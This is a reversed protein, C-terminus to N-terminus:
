SRTGSNGLERTGTTEPLFGVFALAVVALGLVWALAAALGVTDALAGVGTLSLGAAGWALGMVISSAVSARHPLVEQAMVITIAASLYISIGGLALVLYSWAGHTYLFLLLLPTGILLSIALLARRGLRDSLNGGILGGIAGVGGFLFVAAGGAVLSGGRERLLLPLFTIFASIIISRMVVVTWLLLLPRWVGRLDASLSQAREVPVTTQAALSKWLLASLVLGPLAVLWTVDLGSASVALAIIVPGLAYGLEGGAVFLSLGAGKRNGSAHGATSAGQPHFSATGTGAILLLVILSGYSPALGMLGMALVTCAPGLVVFIRRRMRDAFTGFLPQSLAASTNLITALLGALTLSLDFRVVVLPLLPALFSVYFDNVFHAITSAWLTRSDFATVLSRPFSPVFTRGVEVAGSEHSDSDGM